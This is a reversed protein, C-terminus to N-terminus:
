KRQAPSRSVRPTRSSDFTTVRPCSMKRSNARTTEFNFPAEAHLALPLLLALITAVFCFRTPPKTRMRQEPNSQQSCDLEGEPTLEFAGRDRPCHSFWNCHANDGAPNGFKSDRPVPLGAERDADAAMRRGRSQLRQAVEARRLVLAQRERNTVATPPVQVKLKQCLAAFRPDDRYNMIFPTGLLQTLGPDHETYARELWPFMKDPEKRLGYVTAIQFPGGVANEDILTQLAVVAAHDSQAAPRVSGGARIGDNIM